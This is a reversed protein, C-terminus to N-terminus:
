EIDNKRISSRKTINSIRSKFFKEAWDFEPKNDKDLNYHTLRGIIGCLWDACQITQYLHSEAQIPPELLCKRESQGFMESAAIQVIKPRMVKDEQQDLIILFQASKENCEQDLRKISERLVQLYLKKSDHKEQNIRKEVGTYFVFGNLKEIKNLIRFTAKRLEPYKTINKTTYLSSGKKEWRAPHEGSKEIEYNLLSKKTQFFFTAFERVKNYPLVFGGLGFAPHTNHQPHDHSIYPGIHGFEDLYAIYLM